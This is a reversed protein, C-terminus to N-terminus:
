MLIEILCKLAIAREENLKKEDASAAQLDAMEHCVDVILKADEKKPKQAKGGSLMLQVSQLYLLTISYKYENVDFNDRIFKIFYTVAKLMQSVTLNEKGNTALVTSSQLMGAPINYIEKIGIKRMIKQVNQQM